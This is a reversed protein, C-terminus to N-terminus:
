IDACCLDVGLQLLLLEFGQMLSIMGAASALLQLVGRIPQLLLRSIIGDITSHQAGLGFMASPIEKSRRGASTYACGPSASKGAKRAQSLPGSHKPSPLWRLFRWDASEFRDSISRLAHM